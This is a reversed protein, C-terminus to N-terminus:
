QERRSAAKRRSVMPTTAATEVLKPLHHCFVCSECSSTPEVFLSMSEIHSFKPTKKGRVQHLKGPCFEVFLLQVTFTETCLPLCVTFAHFKQLYIVCKFVCLCDCVCVCWICLSNIHVCICYIIHVGLFTDEKLSYNRVAESFCWYVTYRKPIWATKRSQRHKEGAPPITDKRKKSVPKKLHHVRELFWVLADLIWSSTGPFDRFYWRNPLFVRSGFKISSIVQPCFMVGQAAYRYMYVHM